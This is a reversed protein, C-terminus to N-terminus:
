SAKKNKGSVRVGARVHEVKNERVRKSESERKRERERERDVM